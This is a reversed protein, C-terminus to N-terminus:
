DAAALLVRRVLPTPLEGILARARRVLARRRRDDLSTVFPATHAMGLRWDVLDPAGLEPFAIERHEVFLPTMGGREIAAAALEVTGWAAMAAKADVYWGPPRWGAEGLARDVAARAPHDDDIAYTSALLVGGRRLVRAAETVGAAPEALHNLSFAALVVDFAGDIFPLALLDAVVAPPRRGRDVHLMGLAVDVAVVRAGAAAAARSGAGTGSGLDLGAADLLPVPSAAVLIEALRGYIRAPGATWGRAASSYAEALGAATV